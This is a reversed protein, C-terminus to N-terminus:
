QKRKLAQNKRHEIRKKIQTVDDTPVSEILKRTYEDQPNQYIMESPGLEIM